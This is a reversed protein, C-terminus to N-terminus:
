RVGPLFALQFRWQEKDSVREVKWAGAPPLPNTTDFMKRYPAIEEKHMGLTMLLSAIPGGHTVLGIPGIGISENAAREFVQLMRGQLKIEDEESARWEALGAEEICPVDMVAAAIKATKASREFPSYYLKVVGESKLFAALAEAEQEGQPLLGPGPLLDYPIDRRDWDPRAHRVLFITM